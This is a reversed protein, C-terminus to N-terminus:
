SITSFHDTQLVKLIKEIDHVKLVQSMLSELEEIQKNANEIETNTGSVSLSNVGGALGPAGPKSIGFAELLGLYSVPIEPLSNKGGNDIQMKLTANEISLKIIEAIGFGPVGGAFTPAQTPTPQQQQSSLGSFFVTYEYGNKWGQKVNATTCLQVILRGYSSFKNEIEKLQLITAGPNENEIQYLLNQNMDKIRVNPVKLHEVMGAVDVFDIM